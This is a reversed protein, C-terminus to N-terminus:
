LACDNCTLKDDVRGLVLLINQAKLVLRRVENYMSVNTSNLMGLLATDDFM